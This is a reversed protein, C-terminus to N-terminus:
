LQCARSDRRCCGEPPCPNCAAPVSHRLSCPRCATRSQWSGGRQPRRRPCSHAPLAGCVPAAQAPHAGGFGTRSVHTATSRRHQLLCELETGEGQLTLVECRAGGICTSAPAILITDRVDLVRFELPQADLILRLKLAALEGDEGGVGIDQVKPELDPACWELLSLSATADVTWFLFLLQCQHPVIQIRWAASPATRAPAAPPPPAASGPRMKLPLLLTSSGSQLPAPRSGVETGAPRRSHVM